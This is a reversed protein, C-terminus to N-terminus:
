ASFTGPNLITRVQGCKEGTCYEPPASTGEVAGTPDSECDSETDIVGAPRRTVIDQDESRVIGKVETRDDISVIVHYMSTCPQLADGTILRSFYVPKLMRGNVSHKTWYKQDFLVGQQISKIM